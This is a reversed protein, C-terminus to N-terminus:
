SAAVVRDPSLGALYRHVSRASDWTQIVDSDPPQLDYRFRFGLVHQLWIFSVSDILVETDYDVRGEAGQFAMCEAIIATIDDGTILPEDFNTKM